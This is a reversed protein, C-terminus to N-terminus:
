KETSYKSSHSMCLCGHDGISRDRRGSDRLFKSVFRSWRQNIDLVHGRRDRLLDASPHFGSDLLSYHRHDPSLLIKGDYFESSAHAWLETCLSQYMRFGCVMTFDDSLNSISFRASPLVLPWHDSSESLWSRVSGSCHRHDANPYSRCLCCFFRRCFRFREARDNKTWRVLKCISCTTSRLKRRSFVFLNLLCGTLGFTLWVPYVYRTLAAQITALESSLTSSSNIM